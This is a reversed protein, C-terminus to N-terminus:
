ARKRPIVCQRRKPSQLQTTSPPLPLYSHSNLPGDQAIHQWQLQPNQQNSDHPIYQSPNIWQQPQPPYSPQIQSPRSPGDPEYATYNPQQYQILAPSQQAEYGRSTQPLEEYPPPPATYQRPTYEMTVLREDHVAQYM